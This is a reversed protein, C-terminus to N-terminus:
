IAVCSAANSFHRSKITALKFVRVLLSLIVAPYKETLTLLEMTEKDPEQEQREDANSEGKEQIAAHVSHHFGIV